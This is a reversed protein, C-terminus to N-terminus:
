FHVAVRMERVEVAAIPHPQLLAEEPKKQFALTVAPVFLGADREVDAVRALPERQAGFVLPRERARTPRPKKKLRIQQEAWRRRGGAFRRAIVRRALTQRKGRRRQSVLHLD